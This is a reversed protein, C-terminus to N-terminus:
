LMRLKKLVFKDRLIFLHRPNPAAFYSALHTTFSMVPQSSIEHSRSCQRVVDFGFVSAPEIM